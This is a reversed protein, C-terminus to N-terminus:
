RTTILCFISHEVSLPDQAFQRRLIETLDAAFNAVKEPDMSAVDASARVRGVWAEHSYALKTTYAFVQWSTFGAAILDTTWAPYIFTRASDTVSSVHQGMCRLTVDIVNGKLQLWDLATIVLKGEPKLIRNAERAAQPRDFWHWCTSATVCDFTASAFGTREAIGVLYEVKVGAKQDLQRAEILMAASPDIGIVKSGRLALARAFLGTGTGLDLIQQGPLGVGFTALKEFLALDPGQRYKAYDGAHLGFDIRRPM